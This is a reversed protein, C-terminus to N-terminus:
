LHHPCAGVEQQHIKSAKSSLTIEWFSKADMIHSFLKCLAQEPHLFSTVMPFMEVKRPLFLPLGATRQCKPCSLTYLQPDLSHSLSITGCGPETVSLQCMATCM